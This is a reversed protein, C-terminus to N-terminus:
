SVKIGLCKSSIYWSLSLISSHLTCIPVRESLTRVCNMPIASTNDWSLFCVKLATEWSELLLCLNATSLAEVEHLSPWDQKCESSRAGHAQRYQRHLLPQLCSLRLSSPDSSYYHDWRLNPEWLIPYTGLCVFQQPAIIVYTGQLLSGRNRSHLYQLEQLFLPFGQNYKLSQHCDKCCCTPDLACHSNDTCLMTVLLPRFM